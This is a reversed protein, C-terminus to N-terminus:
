CLDTGKRNVCSLEIEEASFFYVAAESTVRERDLKVTFSCWWNCLWNFGNFEVTNRQRLGNIYVTDPISSVM